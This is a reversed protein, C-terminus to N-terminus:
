SKPQNPLVIFREMARRMKSWVFHGAVIDEEKKVGFHEMFGGGHAKQLLLMHVSSAIIWLKNARSVFSDILVFKKRTKEEECSLM